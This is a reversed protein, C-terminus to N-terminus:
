QHVTFKMSGLIGSTPDTAIVDFQVLPTLGSTTTLLGSKPDISVNPIAQPNTSWTVSNTLDFQQGNATGTAVFQESSGYVISNFGDQSTVQLSTLSGIIVTVTASGTVTESAASVVTQGPAIGTVVGSGDITAVRPTASSWFVHSSLKKQSGDNYTGLATMQITIGTQVTAAPGVAIGTLMPDVFFGDCGLAVGITLLVIALIFIQWRRM